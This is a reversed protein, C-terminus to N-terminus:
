KKLRKNLAEFFNNVNKQPKGWGVLQARTGSYVDVRTGESVESILIEINEGWSVITTGAVAKIKGSNIDLDKIRFKCDFLVNKAEKFVKKYPVKYTVTREGSRIGMSIM